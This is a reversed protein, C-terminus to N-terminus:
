KENGGLKPNITVNSLFMVYGEFSVDNDFLDTSNSLLTLRDLPEAVSSNTMVDCLRNM